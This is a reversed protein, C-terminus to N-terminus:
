YTYQVTHVLMAYLLTWSCKLKLVRRITQPANESLGQIQISLDTNITNSERLPAIGWGAGRLNNICKRVPPLSAPPKNDLEFQMESDPDVPSSSELYHLRFTYANRISM